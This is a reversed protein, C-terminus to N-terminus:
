TGKSGLLDEITEMDHDYVARFLLEVEAESPAEVETYFRMARQIILEKEM